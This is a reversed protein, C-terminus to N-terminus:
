NAEHLDSGQLPQPHVLAGGRGPAEGQQRRLAAAGPVQRGAQLDGLVARNHQDPGGSSLHLRWPSPLLLCVLAGGQRSDRQLPLAPCPLAAGTSTILIAPLCPALRGPPCRLWAHPMVAMHCLLRLPWSTGADDRCARPVAAADGERGARSVPGVGHRDPRFAVAAGQWPARQSQWLQGDVPQRRLQCCRRAQHRAQLPARGTRSLAPLLVSEPDRNLPTAANCCTSCARRGRRQYALALGKVQGNM